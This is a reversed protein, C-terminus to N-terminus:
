KQSINQIWRLATTKELADCVVSAFWDEGSFYNLHISKPVILSSPRSLGEGTYKCFAEKATWLPYFDEWRSGNALFIGYEEETLAYRPLTARRPRLVEIDVGIPTSAMGLLLYPGSHSINYHIQPFDPFYPKGQPSRFIPPLERWGCFERAGQSLLDQATYKGRRNDYAILFVGM